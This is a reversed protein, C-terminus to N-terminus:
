EEEDSFVRDVAKMTLDTDSVARTALYNIKPIQNFFPTAQAWRVYPATGTYDSSVAWRSTADVAKIVDTVSKTTPVPDRMIQYVTMPNIYFWIDQYGRYIQNSLMMAMHRLISEEDDDGGKAIGKLASILLAIGAMVGLEGLNKRMNEVDLPNTIGKFASDQYTIQKLLTTLSKKLGLDYYTVWRGKYERNLQLDYDQNRFRSAVGMFIWRRFQTLMRGLLVKNLMIPSAPDYNGHLYKNLQIIKSRLKTLENNTEPGVVTDWSSDEILGEKIKGDKGFLDYVSMKGQTTDVQQHKMLAIASIGQLFYESKNQLVYPDLNKIPNYRSETKGDKYRIDIVEFLVDINKLVNFLKNTSSKDKFSKFMEATASLLAKHNYEVRGNAHVMNAVMGFTINAISAPLNLGMGKLQTLKMLMEGVNQFVLAKGGLEKYRSELYKMEAKYEGESIIGDDFQDELKDRMKEIEKALEHRKLNDKLPTDFRAEAFKQLTEYNKYKGIIKESPYITKDSARPTETKKGYMLADITFRAWKNPTSAGDRAPINDSARDIINYIAEVKDRVQNMYDYNIAVGAFLMLMKKLDKTRGSMEVNGVHSIPINYIPNNRVDKLTNQREEVNNLESVEKSTFSDQIETYIFKIKDRLEMSSLNELLGKHVRALFNYPLDKSVTDPLMSILDAMMTSYFQHFDYLDKNNRIKIFNEDYFGTKTKTNDHYMKPVRVVFREKPYTHLSDISIDGGLFQSTIMPNNEMEWQSKVMDKNSITTDNDIAHFVQDREVLYEQYKTRAMAILDNAIETGFQDTLYQKYEAVNKYVSKDNTTYKTDTLNLFRTDLFITDNKHKLIHDSIAKKRDNATLKKNGHIRSFGHRYDALKDDWMKSYLHTMEGTDKGDKDKQWFIDFDKGVINALTKNSLLKNFAKDITEMTQNMKGIQNNKASKLKSDLLKMIKPRALSMDLVNSTIVSVEKLETLEKESIIEGFEKGGEEQVLNILAKYQRNALTDARNGIEQLAKYYVHNPNDLQEESLLLQSNEFQWTQILNGALILETPNVTASDLLKDVYSLQRDAIHNIAQDGVLTTVNDLDGQLENIRNYLNARTDSPTNKTISSKLVTIRNRINTRLQDVYHENATEGIAFDPNTDEKYEIYDRLVQENVVNEGNKVEVVPFNGFETVNLVHNSEISNEVLQKYYDIRSQYEQPTLKSFDIEEVKARIRDGDKELLELTNRINNPLQQQELISLIKQPSTAKGKYKLTADKFESDYEFTINNDINQLKTHMSKSDKAGMNYKLTKDNLGFERFISAIKNPTNFSVALDGEKNITQDIDFITLQKPPFTVEKKSQELRTIQEQQSELNALLDFASIISSELATNKNVTIGFSEMIFNVIKAFVDQIQELYSKNLKYEINNLERAFDGAELIGAVFEKNNRLPYILADISDLEVSEKNVIKDFKKVRDEYDHIRDKLISEVKTRINDLETIAANVRTSNASRTKPNSWLEVVNGILGHNVEHLITTILRDTSANRINHARENISVKGDKYKGFVTDPLNNDKTIDLKIGTKQLVKRYTRALASHYKNRTDSAINSLVNDAKTGSELYNSLKSQNNNRNEANNAVVREIPSNVNKVGINNEDFLSPSDNHMIDGEIFNIKSVNLGGKTSVKVYKYIDGEVGVLQYLHYLNNKYDYVFNPISSSPTDASVRITFDQIYNFGNVTVLNKTLLTNDELIGKLHPANMPNHQIFSKFVNKGDISSERLNTYFGVDKLYSFPIDQQYNANIPQGLVFSYKIHDHILERVIPNPDNLLENIARSLVSRDINLKSGFNHSVIDVGIEDITKEFALTNLFENAKYKPDTMLEETRRALTKNNPTHIMLRHRLQNLPEGYLAENGSYMHSKLFRIVRNFTSKNLNGGMLVELNNFLATVETSNYGIFNAMGKAFALSEKAYYGWETLAPLTEGFKDKYNAIDERSNYFLSNINNLNPNVDEMNLVYSMYLADAYTKGVGQKSLGLTYNRYKDLEIFYDNLRTFSDLINLQDVYYQSDFKPSLAMSKLEDLTFTDKGKDTIKQEKIITNYLKNAQRIAERKASNKDISPNDSLISNTLNVVTKVIPQNIFAVIHEMPLTLSDDRLLSLLNAIDVTIDNLNIYGAVPDNSNDVAINLLMALNNANTRVQGKYDYSAETSLNSLKYGDFIDITSKHISRDKPNITTLHINNKGELIANFSNYLALSGILAQGSQQSTYLDRQYNWTYPDVYLRDKYENAIEYIDDFRLKNTLKDYTNESTLITDHIDYYERLAINKENHLNVIKIFQNIENLRTIVDDIKNQIEVVDVENKLEQVRTILSNVDEDSTVGLDEALSKYKAIAAKNGKFEDLRDITENLRDIKNILGQKNFYEGVTSTLENRLSNLEGKLEKKSNLLKDKIKANDTFAQNDKTILEIRGNIPNYYHPKLYSYVSDIDFDSDMQTVIEDPVVIVDKYQSPLFGVVEFPLMNSHSSNPIRFGLGELVEPSLKSTDLSMTKTEPDFIVFNNINLEVGNVDKFNFSVIVQARKIGDKTKRIMQLGKAPDFSSTPIISNTDKLDSYTITNDRFFSGPMQTLKWGPMKHKVLEKNIISFLANEIKPLANNYLLPLELQTGDETLSLSDLLNAEWRDNIAHDELVKQIKTIDNFSISGDIDSITAGFKNLLNAKGIDLLKSRLHEKRLRLDRGKVKKGNYTFDTNELGQFLNRNVQTVTLVSTKSHPTIVQLGDFERNHNSIFDNINDSEQVITGDENLPNFVQNDASKVASEFSIRDINNNHALQRIGELYTSGKALDPFLGVVASKTLDPYITNSAADISNTFSIPKQLQVVEIGLDSLSYQGKNKAWAEDLVKIANNYQSETIVNYAKLYNIYEYDSVFEFGDTTNIKSHGKDRLEKISSDRIIDNVIIRNYTPNKFNGMIYPTLASKSRKEISEQTAIFDINGDRMKTFHAPDVATLLIQDKNFAYQNLLYDYVIHRSKYEIGVAKQRRAGRIVTDYTLNKFTTNNLRQISRHDLKGLSARGFKNSVTNDQIMTNYQQELLSQIYRQNVLRLTNITNEGQRLEYIGLEQNNYYINDFEVQTLLAGDNLNGVKPLLNSHDLWGNLLFRVSGERFANTKAVNPNKKASHIRNYEGLIYNFLYNSTNSDVVPLGSNNIDFTFSNRSLTYVPVRGSDGHTLGLLNMTNYGNNLFLNIAMINQASPTMTARDIVSNKGDEGKNTNYKDYYSINFDVRENTTNLLRNLFPSQKHIPLTLLTEIFDNNPNKILRKLTTQRNYKQILYVNNNNSDLATLSYQATNNNHTAKSLELIFPNYVRASYNFYDNVFPNSTTALNTLSGILEGLFGNFINSDYTPKTNSALWEAFSGKYRTRGPLERLSQKDTTIGFEDLLRVFSDLFNDNDFATPESTRDMKEQNYLEMEQKFVPKFSNIVSNVYQVDIVKKGDKTKIFQSNKQNETWKNIINRFGGLTALDLNVINRGVMEVTGDIEQYIPFEITKILSNNAQLINNIFLTRFGETFNQRKKSDSKENLAEIVSAYEPKSELKSNMIDLAEDITSAKGAIDLFLNDYLNNPNVGEPLGLLGKTTVIKGDVLKTSPLSALMIRFEGAYSKPDTKLELDKSYLTREALSSDDEHLESIDDITEDTELLRQYDRVDVLGVERFYNNLLKQIQSFNDLVSNYSDLLAQAENINTVQLKDEIYTKIKDSVNGKNRIYAELVKTTNSLLSQVEAYQANLKLNNITTDESFINNVIQRSLSQITSNQEQPSKFIPLVGIGSVSESPVDYKVQSFAPSYDGFLELNDLSGESKDEQTKGEKDKIDQIKDDVKVDFLISQQAFPTYEGNPLKLRGNITTTLTENLFENYSSFKNNASMINGAKNILPVFVEGAQNIKNLQINISANKLNKELATLYQQQSITSPKGGIPTKTFRVGKDDYYINYYVQDSNNGFVLNDYKDKGFLSRFPQGEGRVLSISDRLYIFNSIYDLLGSHSKLFSYRDAQAGELHIKVAQLLSTGYKNLQGDRSSLKISSVLVFETKGNIEFHVAATGNFEMPFGSEVGKLVQNKGVMLNGNQIIAFGKAGPLAESLKLKEVVPRNQKDLVVRHEGKVKEFKVNRQIKGQTVQKLEGIVEKGAKLSDYIHQRYKTLLKRQNNINDIEQDKGLREAVNEPTIWSKRHIWTDTNVWKGDQEMQILIPMENIYEVSGEQLNAVTDLRSEDLIFRLRTGPKAMQLDYSRQMLENYLTRKIGDEGVVYPIAVWAATNAAEVVLPTYVHPAHSYPFPQKPHEYRNKNIVYARLSSTIEGLNDFDGFVTTDNVALDSDSTITSDNADGEKNKSSENDVASQKSKEKNVISNKLSEFGTKIGEFYSIFPDLKNDKNRDRLIKIDDAIGQIVNTLEDVRSAPNPDQKIDEFLKAAEQRNNEIKTASDPDEKGLLLDKGLISTLKAEGTSEKAPTHGEKNTVPTEVTSDKTSDVIKDKIGQTKEIAINLLNYLHNDTQGMSKLLERDRILGDQIEQLENLKSAPNNHNLISVFKNILGKNNKDLTSMITQADSDLRIGKGLESSLVNPDAQTGVPTAQSTAQSTTESSAPQGSTEASLGGYSSHDMTPVDGTEETAAADKEAQANDKITQKKIAAITQIIPNDDDRVINDVEQETTAKNIEEAKSKVKNETEELVSKKYRALEGPNDKYRNYLLDSNDRVAINNIKNGLAQGLDSDVKSKNHLYKDAKDMITKYRSDFSYSLDPNVYIRPEQKVGDIEVPEANDKLYEQLLDRQKYVNDTYRDELVKIKSILESRTENTANSRDTESVLNDLESRAFGIQESISRLEIDIEKIPRLEHTLEDKNYQDKIQDIVLDLDRINSRAVINNTKLNLLLEKAIPDSEQALTLENFSSELELTINKYEEAKSRFNDKFGLEQAQTDSMQQIADLMNVVNATTGTEFAPRAINNIFELNQIEQFKTADGLTEAQQLMQEYGQRRAARSTMNSIFAMGSGGILGSVGETLGEYSGIHQLYRNMGPTLDHELDYDIHLNRMAENEFHGTNVEQMFESFGTIGADKALTKLKGPITLKGAKALNSSIRNVSNPTISRTGGMYKFLTMYEITELAINAKGMRVVDAGAQAARRKSEETAEEILISYRENYEEPTILGQDDLRNLKKLGKQVIENYATERAEGYIEHASRMHENYNMATSSLLPAAIRRSAGAYAAGMATEFVKAGKLGVHAAKTMLMGPVFYGLSKLIQDGNMYFWELSGIRPQDSKTYVPMAKDLGEELSILWQNFWNGYEEEIENVSTFMQELDLLYGLPEVVSIGAKAVGRTLANALKHSGPQVGARHEEVDRFGDLISFGPTPHFGADYKSFSEVPTFVGPSYRDSNLKKPLSKFEEIDKSLQGINLNLEPM